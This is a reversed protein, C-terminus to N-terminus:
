FDLFGKSPNQSFVKRRGGVCNGGAKQLLTLWKQSMAQNASHVFFSCELALWYDPRSSLDLYNESNCSFSLMTATTFFKMLNRNETFGDVFSRTGPYFRCSCSIWSSILIPFNGAFPQIFHLPTTLPTFVQWSWNDQFKPRPAQSVLLNALYLFPDGLFPCPM